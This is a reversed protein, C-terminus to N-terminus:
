SSAQRVGRGQHLASLKPSGIEKVAGDVAQTLCGRYATMMAASRTESPGCAVRAARVIRGYLTEAGATTALNIDTYEVEISVTRSSPSQAWATGTVATAALLLAGVFARHRSLITSM